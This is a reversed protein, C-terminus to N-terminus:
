STAVAQSRACHSIQTSSARQKASSTVDDGITSLEKVIVKKDLVVSAM